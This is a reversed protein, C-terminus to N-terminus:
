HTKPWARVRAALGSWDLRTFCGQNLLQRGSVWVDTVLDRGGSHVLQRAVDGIPQTAPHELDVCCLDAWKGAELTGIQSDLGLAAAGGRTATALVDWPDLTSARTDADQSLQALLKIDAWVNFGTGEDGNGSGVSLRLGSRAWAAIPAPGSGLSLNSEPCLTIAIGGREAMAIDAATVHVMNASTLAPTLLGLSQMRELPRVGHAAISREIESVSEHLSLLIGTDLEDVLMAIRRFTADSLTGAALPAFATAITPHARYEDRFRLARTLYDAPEAWASPAESIPIGILARMGQETAARASEEPFYGTAAFCTTGSKVMEAICLLAGDQLQLPGPVRRPVAAIQTRANVLGPLVAHSERNVVVLPAYQDAAAACPLVDLIRGDRVIIAHEELVAAHATM